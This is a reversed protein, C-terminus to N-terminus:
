LDSNEDGKVDGIPTSSTLCGGVCSAAGARLAVAVARTM